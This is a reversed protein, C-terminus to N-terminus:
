PSSGMHALSRPGNRVSTTKEAPNADAQGRPDQVEEKVQSGM